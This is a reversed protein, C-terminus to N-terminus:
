CLLDEEKMPALTRDIMNFNNFISISNKCDTFTKGYCHSWYECPRNYNLCAQVNKEATEATINQAIEKLRLMKELVYKTPLESAPIEIDTCELKTRSIYATASEGPKPASRPKGVVRYTAGQFKLPDLGLKQAIQEVHAAYLALQPDRHLRAFLADLVMGSTKLDCIRWNGNVDALV